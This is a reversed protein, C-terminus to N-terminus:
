GKDAEVETGMKKKGGGGRNHFTPFSSSCRELTKMLLLPLFVELLFQNGLREGIM